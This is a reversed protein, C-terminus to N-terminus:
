EVLRLALMTLDDSPEAGVRFERVAALIREVVQEPSLGGCRQIHELLRTEGFLDDQPNKAETIGDTHLLIVDGVQPQASRGVAAFDSVTGLPMVGERDLIRAPQGSRLLLPPPHGANAFVMTKREPEYVGCFLTVFLGRSGCAKLLIDNARDLVAAIGVTDASALPIGRVISLCEAAVPAAALGKGSADGVVLGVRGEPLEVADYFDGGVVQAQETDAFIELGPVRPLQAPLIARQVEAAIEIESELREKDATTRRLEDIHNNLSAMMRDFADSLVGVEGGIKLGIPRDLRGEGIKAAEAVLQQIPTAIRRSFYFSLFGGLLLLFGAVGAMYKISRRMLASRSADFSALLVHRQNEISIPSGVFLRDEDFRTFPVGSEVVRRPEGLFGTDWIRGGLTVGAPTVDMRVHGDPEIVQCRLMGATTVLSQALKAPAMGATLEALSGARYGVQVIRPRDIGSVAAYKFDKGDFQHPMTGQVIQGREMELLAWFEHAQDRRTQARPFTSDAQWGYHLYARGKEDTIRFEDIVTHEAITELRARTEEPSM